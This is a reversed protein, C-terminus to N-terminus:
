RNSALIRRTQHSNCLLRGDSTWLAITGVVWGSGAQETNSHVLVWGDAPGTDLVDTFYLSMEATVIPTPTTLVGYLAPSGTDSLAVVAEADTPRQDTFRVWNLFEARDGGALPRAPSAARLEFHEAIPMPFPPL